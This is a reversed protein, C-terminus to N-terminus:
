IAEIRGLAIREGTQADFLPYKDDKFGVAISEGIKYNIRGFLVCNLNVSGVTVRIVTEM